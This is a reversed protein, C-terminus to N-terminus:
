TIKTNQGGRRTRMSEEWIRLCNQAGCVVKFKGCEEYLSEVYEGCVCFSHLVHPFSNESEGTDKFKM